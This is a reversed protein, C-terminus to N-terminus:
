AKIKAPIEFCAADGDKDGLGWHVTLSVTPYIPLIKFKNKYIYTEGAKLPCGVKKLARLMTSTHVLVPAMIDPSRYHYM